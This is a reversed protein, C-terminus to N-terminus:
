TACRAACRRAPVPGSIMLRDAHKRLLIETQQLTVQDTCASADQTLDATVAGGMAADGHSANM